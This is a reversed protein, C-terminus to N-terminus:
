RARAPTQLYIAPPFEPLFAEPLDFDIDFRELRPFMAIQMKPFVQGGPTQKPHPLSPYPFTGARRIEAPSMAALSEWTVGRLWAPRRGWAFRSAARCRPRRSRPVPDLNYRQELLRRQTEMVAAKAAIDAKMNEEFSEMPKKANLPDRYFDFGLIQGKEPQAQSPRRRPPPKRRRSCTQSTTPRRRSNPALRRSPTRPRRLSSPTPPRQRRPRTAPRLRAFNSRALAPRRFALKFRPGAQTSTTKPM